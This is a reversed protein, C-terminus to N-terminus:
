PWMSLLGSGCLYERAVAQATQAEAFEERVKGATYAKVAGTPNGVFHAIVACVAKQYAELQEADTSDVVNVVPICSDVMAASPTVLSDFEGISGPFGWAAYQTYTPLLDAM